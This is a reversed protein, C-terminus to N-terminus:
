PCRRFYDVIAEATKRDISEVRVLDKVRAREIKAVSGFHKLLNQKRVEGVGRIGDLVSERLVKKRLGRHYSIAFRHAEDRVRQILRLAKSHPPLTIPELRQPLYIREFEKAIGITPIKAWGLGKLEVLAQALHAKGGDIIILDPKLAGAEEKSKLVSRRLVERMMRYDDIGVVGRIRFRRYDSKDPAGDVFTVRAGVSLTGSITSIDYAEIRQPANVLGLLERLEEIGGRLDVAAERAEVMRSLAEIRDRFRQAREFELKHSADEMQSVLDKILRDRGQELFLGLDEIIAGYDVSTIKGVCPAPCQGIYYYLCVRKPLRRCSRTPFIRRLLKVAERLLRANTFPGYYISGDVKRRRTIFLRPFEDSVTFKLLPYSKDDKLTVNYRPQYRKVLSHELLLAEAESGTQVFDIDKVKEMLARTRSSQYGTSRFYSSVRKKLQRAKGVYIVQGSGDKMLYVGPSNPLHALKEKIDMGM